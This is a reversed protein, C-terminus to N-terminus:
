TANKRHNKTRQYHIFKSFNNNIEILKKLINIDLLSLFLSIYPKIWFVNMHIAHFFSEISKISDGNLCYLIGLMYYARSYGKTDSLLYFHYKKIIAERGKIQLSYNSGLNNKHRGYKVLPSQICEFYFEKSIRLWMDYDLGSDINKDFLGVKEFCVKRLLISSVTIMEENRLLHHFINGRMTAIKTRLEKGSAIEVEIRGTHVAGVKLPSNDLLSVQMHLKEPLWEDDDDLFAIYEGNANKVGTNRSGGEGKNVHHRIYRIRKDAFGNVVQATNDQSADDVIIIELNQFSQNLVSQIAKSLLYSRNYTLIIVSVKPTNM